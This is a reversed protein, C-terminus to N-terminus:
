NILYHMNLVYKQKLEIFYNEFSKLLRCILVTLGFGSSNNVTARSTAISNTNPYMPRMLNASFMSAASTGTIQSHHKLFPIFMIIFKM